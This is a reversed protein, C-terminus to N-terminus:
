VMRYHWPHISLGSTTSAICTSWTQPGERWNRRELDEVEVVALDKMVAVGEMMQEQRMAAKAQEMVLDEVAAMVEVMLHEQKMAVKGQEMRVAVAVVRDLRAEELKVLVLVALGFGWGREEVLDWVELEMLRWYMMM